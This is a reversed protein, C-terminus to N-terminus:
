SRFGGGATRDEQKVGVAGSQGTHKVGAGRPRRQSSRIMLRINHAVSLGAPPAVYCPAHRPNLSPLSDLENGMETTREGVVEM